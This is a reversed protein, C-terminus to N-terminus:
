PEFAGIAPKAAAKRPKPPGIGPSPEFAPVNTPNSFPYTSSSPPNPNAGGILPSGPGPKLDRSALSIFGPSAGYKTATLSNVSSSGDSLWNNSGSITSSGSVWKAETEKVLQLGVGGARYFANNYLEVSETSDYVRIAAKSDAMVFTNYLFRYRGGTDGTGDGGVRVAHSPNTKYLVNGVVESDERKLKPDGGDPGILELEQYMAGEIWNYHIENREARSKVNIGGVGDHVYCHQMRFVAGPHAKEDTAMYIQHHRDGEGSRAFESHELLLSGSDDDAGLLGNHCDHIFVRRVIIDDAHHFFCRKTAGTIELDEFVYHDGKAEITDASGKIVPRKGEILQGRILIPKEATGDQEFRVGGPYTANGYVEVIDGPKLLKAVSKLDPYKSGPAVVYTADGRISKAPEGNGVPALPEGDPGVETLETPLGGQSDPHAPIPSGGGWQREPCGVLLVLSILTLRRM